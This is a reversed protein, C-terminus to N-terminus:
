FEHFINIRKRIYNAYKTGTVIEPAAYNVNGVITKMLSPDGFQFSQCSSEDSQSSRQVSSFNELWVSKGSSSDFQQSISSKNKRLRKFPTAMGFDMLKLHGSTTLLLNDPKIDRRAFLFLLVFDNNM